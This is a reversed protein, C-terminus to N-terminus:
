GRRSSSSTPRSASSTCRTPPRSVSCAVASSPASRRRGRPGRAAAVRIAELDEITRYVYCGELDHGPVPPVFPAAGTALVLEDYHLDEGTALTVIRHRPSVAVVETNIRLTVRPDDYRGSPLYSLAEAGVEFYSTLAVRDYAPRPEEGVVTIDYTETLGRSIASEVFRHGVMGHGVVVLQKRLHPAM